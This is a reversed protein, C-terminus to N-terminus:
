NRKLLRSLKRTLGNNKHVTQVLTHFPHLIPSSQKDTQIGTKMNWKRFQKVSGSTSFIQFM